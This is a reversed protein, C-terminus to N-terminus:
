ALIEAARGADLLGASELAQVGAITQTDALNIEQALKFKELWVEVQVSQKAATYIAALEADTFRMMYELKTLIYGQTTEVTGDALPVVEIHDYDAFPYEPFSYASEAGYAYVTKGTSKDIVRFVPM